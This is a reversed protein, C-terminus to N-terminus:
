SKNKEPNTIVLLPNSTKEQSITLPRSKAAELNHGVNWSADQRTSIIQFFNAVPVNFVDAYRLLDEVKAKRFHKYKLHKKVKRKSLGARSALESVSLEELSRYRSIPSIEGKMLQEFLEKEFNGWIHYFEDLYNGALYSGTQVPGISHDEKEAYLILQHDKFDTLIDKEKM